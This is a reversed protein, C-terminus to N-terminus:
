KCIENLKKNIEYVQETSVRDGAMSVIREISMSSLFKLMGENMQLGIGGSNEDKFMKEILAVIMQKGKDNQMIDGLTDKISFKDQPFEFIIKEGNKEFWNSIKNNNKFVYKEDPYDVKNLTVVDVCDGSVAKIMTKESLPVDFEFIHKGIKSDFKEDNVFLTVEKLNSYVKVKTINEDRNTYGKSTIHVFPEKSWYAKYIYFADKKHKRDFTVLGKNNRGAVGGENRSDVAFDFMNWVFTCWLYPREEIIKLMEEHYLAQYEETYDGQQPNKSHWKLIGEAGYESLGIAKKPFKTRFDDLWVANDETKGVYWGFYHNYAMVDTIDVLKSEPALVSLNALTTPRTGDMLHCLENLDKHLDYIGEVEGGITIENSIGWCVISPHNYNQVILEKMQNLANENGNALHISIYPIEAWVVLGKEDCLDYFYNDHQYHALRVANAGVECILEIDEEHDCKNIAWGKDLRDQHRSVGRLPYLRGNLYFGNEDIRFSRIGFKIKRCDIIKGNEILFLSANYLVPNDIGNWLKPNEILIDMEANKASMNYNKIVCDDVSIEVKVFQGEKPNTIFAKINVKAVGDNQVCPTIWVGSGGYCDLDFRSTQVEHIFVGRYLGGFFTFDAMQPYIYDNAENSCLVIFTNDGDIISDTINFRFTSFGGRHEGVYMDNLYLKAISNAGQFEIYYEMNEKKHFEVIRKYACQGRFYDSGGDQGDLNNWTHPLDIKEGTKSCIDNINKVNKFFEWNLNICETNM